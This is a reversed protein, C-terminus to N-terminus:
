IGPIKEHEPDFNFFYIQDAPGFFNPSVVNPNFSIKMIKQFYLM